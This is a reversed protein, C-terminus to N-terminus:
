NQIRDMQGDGFNWDLNNSGLNYNVSSVFITEFQPM